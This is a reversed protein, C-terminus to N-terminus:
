NPTTIQQHHQRARSLLNADYSSGTVSIPKRGSVTHNLGPNTAILACGPTLTVASGAAIYNLEASGVSLM